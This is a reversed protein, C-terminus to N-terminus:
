NAKPVLIGYQEAILEQLAPDRELARVVVAAGAIMGRRSAHAKLSDRGKLRTTEPPLSTPLPGFDPPPYHEPQPASSATM